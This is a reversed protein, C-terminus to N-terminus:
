KEKITIHIAIEEYDEKVVITNEFVTLDPDKKLEELAKITKECNACNGNLIIKPIYLTTTTSWRMLQKLNEIRKKSM